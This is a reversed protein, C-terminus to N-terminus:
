YTKTKKRAEIFLENGQRPEISNYARELHLIDFFPEFYSRYEEANGGFPPHDFDFVTDFLVGILKGNETLLRHANEAYNPRLSPPLACFFTQEVIFDFSDNLEFFDDNIIQNEPFHKVREQFCKLASSSIDLLYVNKFGMNLLAEGEWANGCGPILIRANKNAVTKFYEIIPPSAYGIDWGTQGNKWRTEWYDTNFIQDSM